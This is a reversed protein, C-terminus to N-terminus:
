CAYSTRFININVRRMFTVEVGHLDRFGTGDVMRLLPLNDVEGM